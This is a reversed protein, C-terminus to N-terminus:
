SIFLKSIEDKMSSRWNKVNPFQKEIEAIDKAIEKIEDQLIQTRLFKREIMAAIQLRKAKDAEVAAVNGSESLKRALESMRSASTLLTKAHTFVAFKVDDPLKGFEGANLAQYKEYEQQNM